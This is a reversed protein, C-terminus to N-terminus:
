AEAVSNEIRAHQSHHCWQHVLALKYPQEVGESQPPRERHVFIYNADQDPDFQVGCIRCRQGQQELLRTRRKSYSADVMRKQKRAQWYMAEDPNMPSSKGRVKVFRKVAIESHSCFTVEEGTSREGRFVWDQSGKRTFYHAKVWKKSKNPHRRLAWRWLMDWLRHDASQFIEKSVGYRYYNSWGRIIPALRGIVVGTPTQKNSDLYERFRRLHHLVKEKQPKTLVKRGFRRVNFGLFNFGDDIHVIHTKAASLQLGRESLFSTLTPLVYEEIVTKSPATVVFDDAYRILGIGRNRGSRRAPSRQQGTGNEAGFLLEM